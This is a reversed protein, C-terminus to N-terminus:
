AIHLSDSSCDYRMDAIKKLRRDGWQISYLEEIVFDLFSNRERTRRIRWFRTVIGCHFYVLVVKNPSLTDKLYKVESYHRIGTLVTRERNLRGSNMLYRVGIDEKGEKRMRAVFRRLRVKMLSKDHARLQKMVTSLEYHVFDHEVALCRAITTKGAGRRGAILIVVQGSRLARTRLVSAIRDCSHRGLENKFRYFSLQM